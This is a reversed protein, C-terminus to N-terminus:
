LYKQVLPLRSLRLNINSAKSCLCSIEGDSFLLTCVSSRFFFLLLWWFWTTLFCCTLWANMLDDSFLLDIMCEDIVMEFMFQTYCPRRILQKSMTWDLFSQLRKPLAVQISTGQESFFNVFFFLLFTWPNSIIWSSVLRTGWWLTSCKVVIKRSGVQLEKWCCVLVLEMMLNWMTDYGVVQLLSYFLCSRETSGYM